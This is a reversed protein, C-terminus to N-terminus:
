GDQEGELHDRRGDERLRLEPLLEGAPVLEVGQEEDERDRDGEEPGSRPGEVADESEGLARRNEERAQLGARHAWRRRPDHPGVEREDLREHYRPPSEDGGRSVRGTRPVRNGGPVHRIDM